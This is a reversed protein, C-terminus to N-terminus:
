RIRKISNQINQMNIQENVMDLMRQAFANEPYNEAFLKIYNLAKNYEGHNFYIAGLSRLAEECTPELLLSKEYMAIAENIKGAQYLANGMGAHTVFGPYKNLADSWLSISNFWVHSRQWSLLPLPFLMLCMLATGVWKTRPSLRDFCYMSGSILLVAFGLLPFYLYRDNMLTTLPILQSVPLIGVPIFAAWFFMAKKIRFLHFLGACLLMVFMGSLAVAVDIGAKIPVHYHISLNTPWFLNGAYRAIVTLMTLFLDYASENPYNVIGGGSTYAQSKLTLLAVVVAAAFFPIKDIVVQRWYRRPAICIDYLVLMLPLVVTVSKTLIACIFALIAVIYHSHGHQIEKARYYIYSLLSVLFFFMALLNKRQSIWVVSEVQVPHLLFVIGAFLAVRNNTTLKAVLWYFLLGNMTHLVINFFIYGAPNLGWLTYDLMYSVIHLPAYNGFYFKTFAARLHEFSFGYVDSNKAVYNYDDWNTLFQHDLSQGYVAFSAGILLLMHLCMPNLSRLLFTKREPLTM